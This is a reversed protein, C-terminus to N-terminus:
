GGGPPGPGAEAEGEGQRARSELGTGPLEPDLFRGESSDPV